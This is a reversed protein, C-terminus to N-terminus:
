SGKKSTSQEYEKIRGDLATIYNRISNYCNTLLITEEGTRVGKEIYNRLINLQELNEM